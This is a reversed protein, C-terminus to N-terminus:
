ATNINFIKTQKNYPTQNLEKILDKVTKIEAEIQYLRHKLLALSTFSLDRKLESLLIKNKLDFHGSELYELKKKTTNLGETKGLKKMLLIGIDFAIPDLNDDDIFSIISEDLIKKGDTTIEYLEENGSKGSRLYEQRFLNKCALDLTSDSVPFWKQVKLEDLLLTLEGFTAMGDSLIGLILIGLKTIM